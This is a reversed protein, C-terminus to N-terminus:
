SYIVHPPQNQEVELGGLVRKNKKKEGSNGDQKAAPWLGESAQAQAAVWLSLRECMISQVSSLLDRVVEEATHDLLLYAGRWGDM